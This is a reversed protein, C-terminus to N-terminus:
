VYQLNNKNISKFTSSTVISCSKLSPRNLANLEASRSIAKSSSFAISAFRGLLIDSLSTTYKVKDDSEDGDVTKFEDCGNCSHCFVEEFGHFKDKKKHPCPEVPESLQRLHQKQHDKQQQNLNCKRFSIKLKCGENFIMSNNSSNISTRNNTKNSIISQFEKLSKDNQLNSSIRSTNAKLRSELGDVGENMSKSVVNINNINNFSHNLNEFQKDAKFIHKQKNLSNKNLGIETSNKRRRLM